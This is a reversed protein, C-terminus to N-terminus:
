GDTFLHALQTKPPRIPRVGEFGEIPPTKLTDACIGTSDPVKNRRRESGPESLVAESHQDQDLRNRALCTSKLVQSKHEEIKSRHKSTKEHDAFVHVKKNSQPTKPRSPWGGAEFHALPCTNEDSFSCHEPWTAKSHPDFISQHVRRCAWSEQTDEEFRLSSSSLPLM